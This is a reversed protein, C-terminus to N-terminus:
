ELGDSHYIYMGFNFSTIYMHLNLVAYCTFVPTYHTAPLHLGQSELFFMFCSEDFFNKNEIGLDIYERLNVLFYIEEANYGYSFLISNNSRLVEFSNYDARILAEELENMKSYSVTHRCQELLRKKAITLDTRDSNLEVYRSAIDSDMWLLPFSVLYENM